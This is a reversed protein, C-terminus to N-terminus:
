SPNCGKLPAWTNHRAWIAQHDKLAAAYKAADGSFVYVPVDAPAKALVVALVRFDIVEAGLIVVRRVVGNKRATADRVASLLADVSSPDRVTVSRKIFDPHNFGGPVVIFGSSVDNREAILDAASLDAFIRLDADHDERQKAWTFAGGSLIRVRKFGRKKLDVCVAELDTEGHGSGVMLVGQNKLFNKVKIEEVKMRMLDPLPAHNASGSDRVDVITSPGTKQWAKLASSDLYCSADRVVPALEQLVSPGTKTALQAFASPMFVTLLCCMGVFRMIMM